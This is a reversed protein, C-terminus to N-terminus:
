KLTLAMLGALLFMPWTVIAVIIGFPALESLCIPQERHLMDIM